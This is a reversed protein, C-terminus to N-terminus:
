RLLINQLTNIMKNKLLRIYNRLVDFPSIGKQLLM